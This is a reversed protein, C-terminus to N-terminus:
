DRRIVGQQTRGSSALLASGLCEEQGETHGSTADQQSFGIYSLVSVAYSIVLFTVYM